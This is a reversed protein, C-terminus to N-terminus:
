NTTLDSSFSRTWGIGFLYGSAAKDPVLPLFVNLGVQNRSNLMFKPSVAVGYHWLVDSYSYDRKFAVRENILTGRTIAVSTGVPVEFNFQFRNFNFAYGLHIAPIIRMDVANKLYAISESEGKFDFYTTLCFAITPHHKRKSLSRIYKGNFGYFLTEDGAVNLGVELSNNRVQDNQAIAHNFMMMFFAVVGIKIVLYM